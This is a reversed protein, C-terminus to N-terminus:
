YITRDEEDVRSAGQDFDVKRLVSFLGKDLLPMQTSLGGHVSYIRNGILAAMPLMDFVENRLKWPGARGYRQVIEEYFGYLPSV